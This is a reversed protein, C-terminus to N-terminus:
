SSRPEAQSKPGPLLDAVRIQTQPADLPSLSAEETYRVRSRYGFGYRSGSLPAPDRYVELCREKLNLIWYDRIGGRAYIAAKKGRDLRLTTDSIEILLKVDAATPGRGLYDLLAGQVVLIDPETYDSESLRFPGQQRVDCDPGFAAEAVKAAVRVHVFHPDSQATMREIVEGDILELREPHDFLGSEVARFFEKVTWRHVRAGEDQTDQELGEALTDM